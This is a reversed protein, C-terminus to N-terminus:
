SKKGEEGIVPHNQELKCKDSILLATVHYDSIVTLHFSVQLSEDEVSISICASSTLPPSEQESDTLCAPLSVGQSWGRHQAARSVGQNSLCCVCVRAAAAAAQTCLATSLM